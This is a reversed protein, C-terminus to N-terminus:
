GREKCDRVLIEKMRERRRVEIEGELQEGLSLKEM